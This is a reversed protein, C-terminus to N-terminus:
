PVLLRYAETATRFRGPNGEGGHMDPHCERAIRRYALKIEALSAGPGLGLVEYPDLDPNSGAEAESRTQERYWPDEDDAEDNDAEKDAYAEDDDRISAKGQRGEVLAVLVIAGLAILAMDFYGAVLAALPAVLGLSVLMRVTKRSRYRVLWPWWISKLFLLGLTLSLLIAGIALLRDVIPPRNRNEQFSGIAYVALFLWFPVSALALL